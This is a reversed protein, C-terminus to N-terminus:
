SRFATKLRAMQAPTLPDEGPATTQAAVLVVEEGDLLALETWPDSDPTRDSVLGGTSARAHGVLLGIGAGGDLGVCREIDKQRGGFFEEAIGTDAFTARVAIVRVDDVRYDVELAHDPVALRRGRPCGLPVAALAVEQPDRALAPTGNGAYGEEGDGPDVVYAWRRGLDSPRPFSALSLGGSSTGPRDM